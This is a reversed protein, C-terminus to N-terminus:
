KAEFFVQPHLLEVVNGAGGCCEGIMTIPQGTFVMARARIADLGKGQFRMAVSTRSRTELRVVLGDFSVGEERLAVVGDVRVIKGGLRERAREENRSFTDALKDASIALQPILREPDPVPVSAPRPVAAIKPKPRPATGMTSNLVKLGMGVAFMAAIAIAGIKWVRYSASDLSM